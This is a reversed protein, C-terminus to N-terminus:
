KRFPASALRWILWLPVVVLAGTLLPRWGAGVAWAGVSWVGHLLADLTGGLSFGPAFPNIGSADLVAGVVICVLVLKLVQKWNVSMVRQRFTRRGPAVDEFKHTLPPLTVPHAAAPPPDLPPRDRHEDM